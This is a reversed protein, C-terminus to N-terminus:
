PAQANNTPTSTNASDCGHTALPSDVERTVSPSGTRRMVAPLLAGVANKVMSLLRGGASVSSSSNGTPSMISNIQPTSSHPSPFYNDKASSM